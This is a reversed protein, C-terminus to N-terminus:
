LMEKAGLMERRMGCRDLARIFVDSPNDFSVEPISKSLSCLVQLMCTDIDELNATDVGISAGDLNEVLTAALEQAHRITVAGELKLVRGGQHDLISFPM